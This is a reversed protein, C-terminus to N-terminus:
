DIKKAKKYNERFQEPSYGKLSPLVKVRVNLPRLSKGYRM